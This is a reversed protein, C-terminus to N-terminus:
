DMVIFLAIGFIHLTIVTEDKKKHNRFLRLLQNVTLGSLEEKAKEHEVIFIYRTNEEFIMFVTKPNNTIFECSLDGAGNMINLIYFCCEPKHFEKIVDTTSRQYFTFVTDTVEVELLLSTVPYKATYMDLLLKKLRVVCNIDVPFTDISKWSQRRLSGRKWIPDKYSALGKEVSTVRQINLTEDSYSNFYHADGFILYINACNQLLDYYEQKTYPQRELKPCVDKNLNNFTTELYRKINDITLHERSNLIFGIMKKVNKIEPETFTVNDEIYLFDYQEEEIPELKLYFVLHRTVSDILTYVADKSYQDKVISLVQALNMGSFDHKKTNYAFHFFSNSANLGSSEDINMNVPEIFTMYHESVKIKEMPIDRLVKFATNLFVHGTPVSYMCPVSNIVFVPFDHFQQLFFYPFFAPVEDWDRFTCFWPEDEHFLITIKNNNEKTLIYQVIKLHNGQAHHAWPLHEITVSM